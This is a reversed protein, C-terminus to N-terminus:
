VAVLVLKRRNKNNIPQNTPITTKNKANTEKNKYGQGDIM